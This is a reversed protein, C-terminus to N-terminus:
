NKVHVHTVVDAGLTHDPNPTGCGPDIVTGDMALVTARPCTDNETNSDPIGDLAATNLSASFTYDGACSEFLQSFAVRLTAGADLTIPFKRTPQLLVPQDGDCGSVSLAVLNTLNNFTAITDSHNSLNQLRVM